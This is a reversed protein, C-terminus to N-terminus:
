VQQHHHGPIQIWNIKKGPLFYSTGTQRVPSFCPATAVLLSSGLGGEHSSRSLSLLFGLYSTKLFTQVGSRLPRCVQPNRHGLHTEQKTKSDKPSGAALSCLQEHCHHPDKRGPRSYGAVQWSGSAGRGHHTDWRHVM